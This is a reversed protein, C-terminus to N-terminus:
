ARTSSKVQQSVAYLQKMPNSLRDTLDVTRSQMVNQDQLGMKKIALKSNILMIDEMVPNLKPTRFEDDVYCIPECFFAELMREKSPTKVRAFLHEFEKLFTIGLDVHKM